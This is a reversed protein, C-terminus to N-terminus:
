KIFVYKDMVEACFGQILLEKSEKQSLGRTQLYFLEEGSIQGVTAGHSAKVDDAFIELNPKSNAQAGQSLLLNQNMQFAETRQAEQHVYIKGEFSSRSSDGLVGKFLQNSRCNPAQHDVKVHTHAENKGDLMWCGALHAEANEGTLNVKYDERWGEAGETASLTKFRSDRKISARVAHMEWGGEPLGFSKREYHASAGDELSFHISGNVFSEVPALYITQLSIKASALAGCFLEVRPSILCGAEDVFHLIHIPAELNVQPPLYIFLADSAFAANLAAFPDIEEVQNRLSQNNLHSGFARFAESMPVAITRKPLGEFHSLEPHFCGNYFVAVPEESLYSAIKDKTFAKQPPLSISQSYLKHLPLYQFEGTKRTPLGLQLFRDWARLQSKFQPGVGSEASYLEELRKHFLEQDQAKVESGTM